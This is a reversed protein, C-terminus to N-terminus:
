MNYLHTIQTCYQIFCMCYLMVPDIAVSLLHAHILGNNPNCHATNIISSHLLFSLPPPLPSPQLYPECHQWVATVTFSSELFSGSFMRGREGERSGERLGALELEGPVRVDQAAATHGHPDREGEM